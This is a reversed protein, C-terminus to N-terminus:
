PWNTYIQHLRLWAKAGKWEAPVTIDEAHRVGCACLFCPYLCEIDCRCGLTGDSIAPGQNGNRCQGYQTCFTHWLVHPTITPLPDDPHLKRYKKMAWQMHHEIHMAVCPKGNKDLLLFGSYGDVYYEIDPKKRNAIIRQLADRVNDTMPLFRCGSETKTKEVFLMGDSMRVLQHNVRIRRNAFDLQEKTIGGDNYSAGANEISNIEKEKERLGDLTPAYVTHRKGSSDTYRYQYTLDKRQSEGTRLVRGKKDKRKASM